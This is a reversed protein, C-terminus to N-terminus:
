LGAFRVMIAIIVVVLMLLAVGVSIFHVAKLFKTTPENPEHGYTEANVAISRGFVHGVYNVISALLGVGFLVVFIGIGKLQPTAAYDKLTTLCGVLGVAHAALLYNASKFHIEYHDKMVDAMSPGNGTTM